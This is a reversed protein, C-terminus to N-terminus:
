TKRYFFLILGVLLFCIPWVRSAARAVPGELRLELWRSWSAGLGLLAIPIHTV